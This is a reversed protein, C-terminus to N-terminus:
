FLCKTSIQGKGAENLFFHNKSKSTFKILLINILKNLFSAKQISDKNLTHMINIFPDNVFYTHMFFQYEQCGGGKYATM